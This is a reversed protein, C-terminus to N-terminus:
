KVHCSLCLASNTNAIHLMAGTGVVKNHVDHCSSCEFKTGGNMWAAPPLKLEGDAAVLDADFTFSIPHSKKLNLGLGRNGAGEALEPISVGTHGTYSDPAVTGDHCSLCLKSIGTPQGDVGDIPTGDFTDSAYMEYNAATATHNWLPADAITTDANHPTHCPLCIQTATGGATGTATLDHGSGALLAQSISAVSVGALVAVTIIIIKKM